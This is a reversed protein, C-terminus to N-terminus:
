SYLLASENVQSLSGGLILCRPPVSVRMPCLTECGMVGEFSEAAIAHTDPKAFRLRIAKVAHDLKACAATIVTIANWFGVFAIEQPAHSDKNNDTYSQDHEPLGDSSSADAAAAYARV